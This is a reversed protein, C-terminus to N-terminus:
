SIYYKEREKRYKIMQKFDKYDFLLKAGLVMSFYLVKTIKPVITPSVRSQFVSLAIKEKLKGFSFTYKVPTTIEQPASEYLIYKEDLTLVEKKETVPISTPIPTLAVYHFPALIVKAAPIITLTGQVKDSFTLTYEATFHLYEQRISVVNGDSLIMARKIKNDGKMGFFIDDYDKQGTANLLYPPGGSTPFIAPYCHYFLPKECSTKQSIGAVLLFSSTRVLLAQLTPYYQAFPKAYSFVEQANTITGGKDPRTSLFAYCAAFSLYDARSNYAYWGVKQEQLPNAVIKKHQLAPTVHKEIKRATARYFYNNTLLAAGHLAYIYTVYGFVQKQGRGFYNFDGQPDIFPLLFDVGQLFAKKLKETPKCQYYQYLLAVIYAHYQFSNNEPSDWFFGQEDQRSLVINLECRSRWLDKKRGFLHYRLLYNLARMMTYNTQFSCINKWHLLYNEIEKQLSEPLESRLLPYASIIAHNKFEWRYIGPIQTYHRALSLESRLAKIAREKWFTRKTKTYHLACIWAYFANGYSNDIPKGDPDQLGGSETDQFTSLFVALEESLTM